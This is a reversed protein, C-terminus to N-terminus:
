VKKVTYGNIPFENGRGTEFWAAIAEVMLYHIGRTRLELAITDFSVSTFLMSGDPHELSYM